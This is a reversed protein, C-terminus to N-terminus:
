LTRSGGLHHVIRHDAKSETCALVVSVGQPGSHLQMGATSRTLEDTELASPSSKLYDRTIATVTPAQRQRTTGKTYHGRVFSRKDYKYYKTHTSQTYIYIHGKLTTYLDLYGRLRPVKKFDKNFCFAPATDKVAVRGEGQEAHTRRARLLPNPRIHCQRGSRIWGDPAWPVEEARPPHCAVRSAFCSAQEMHPWAVPQELPQQQAADPAAM